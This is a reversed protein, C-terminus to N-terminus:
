ADEELTRLKRACRTIYWGMAGSVVVFVASVFIALPWPTEGATFVVRVISATVSGILLAAGAVQWRLASREQMVRTARMFSVLMGATLVVQLGTLGADIVSM